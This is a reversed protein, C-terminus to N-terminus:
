ELDNLKENFDTGMLESGCTPLSEWKKNSPSEITWWSTNFFYTPQLKENSWTRLIVADAVGYIVGDGQIDPFKEEDLFLYCLSAKLMAYGKREIPKEDEFLKAKDYIYKEDEKEFEKADNKVPILEGNIFLNKKDDREIVYSKSDEFELTTKRLLSKGNELKDSETTMKKKRTSM